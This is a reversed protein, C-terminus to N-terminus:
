QGLNIILGSINCSKLTYLQRLRDFELQLNNEHRTMTLNHFGEAIGTMRTMLAMMRTMLAMMLINSCITNINNGVHTHNNKKSKREVLIEDLYHKVNYM